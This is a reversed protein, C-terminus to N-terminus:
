KDSLDRYWYDSIFHRTILLHASNLVAQVVLHPSVAGVAHSKHYCCDEFRSYRPWEPRMVSASLTSQRLVPRAGDVSANPTPTAHTSYSSLYPTIAQTLSIFTLAGGGAKNTM